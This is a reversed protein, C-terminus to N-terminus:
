VPFNLLFDVAVDAIQVEPLHFMFSFFPNLLYPIKVLFHALCAARGGLQSVPKQPNTNFLPKVFLRQGQGIISSQLSLKMLAEMPNKFSFLDNSKVSM